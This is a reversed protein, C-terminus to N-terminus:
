NSIIIKRFPTNIIHIVKSFFGNFFFLQRYGDKKKYIKHITPFISIFFNFLLVGGRDLNLLTKPLRLDQHGSERQPSNMLFLIASYM